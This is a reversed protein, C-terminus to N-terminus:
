DNITEVGRAAMPGCVEFVNTVLQHLNVAESKLVLVGARLAAADLIDDVLATLSHGSSQILKLIRVAHSGLGADRLLSGSLALIAHLPTRLEHSTAALFREQQQQAVILENQVSKMRSIDTENVSIAFEGTEPDRAACFQLLHVVGSQVHQKVREVEFVKGHGEKCAKLMKQYAVECDEKKPWECSEFVDRLCITEKALAMSYYVKASLNCDIM